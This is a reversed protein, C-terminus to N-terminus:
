LLVAAQVSAYYHYYTIYLFKIRYILRRSTLRLAAKEEFCLYYKLLIRKVDEPLPCLFDMKYRFCM